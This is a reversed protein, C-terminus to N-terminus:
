SRPSSRSPSRATSSRTARATSRAWGGAGIPALIEYPGLRTGAALTAEAAGRSNTPRCKRIGACSRCAPSPSGRARSCATVALCEAAVVSRSGRIRACRISTPISRSGAPRSTPRADEPAARPPRDGERARRRPHLDARAAVRRLRGPGRREQNRSLPSRASARGSRKTRGGSIRSRSASSVTSSHTTRRTPSSSSWRRGRRRRTSAPARSCRGRPLRGPDPLAGLDGTDDFDEPKLGRLLEPRSTTSFGSSITTRPWTPSSRRRSSTGQRGRVSARAGALDGESLYTM